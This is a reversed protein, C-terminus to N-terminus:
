PESSCYNQVSPRTSVFFFSICIGQSSPSASHGATALEILKVGSGIKGSGMNAATRVPLVTCLETLSPTPPFSSSKRKLARSAPLPRHVSPLLDNNHCRPCKREPNDATRYQILVQPQGGFIRGGQPGKCM